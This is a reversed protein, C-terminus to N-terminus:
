SYHLNSVTLVSLSQATETEEKSQKCGTLQLVCVGSLVAVKITNLINM